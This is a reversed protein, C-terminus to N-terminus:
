RNLWPQNGRNKTKNPRSSVTRIVAKKTNKRQVVIKVPKDLEPEAQKAANQDSRNGKCGCDAQNADNAGATQPWGPYPPYAPYGYGYGYGGDHQAQAPMVMGHGGYGYGYDPQMNSPSIFGQNPHMAHPSVMGQNPHMALPSVMGQNPQMALPSVMGQNPQMALPSVMGQNPQMALPSVMGQNPQMALPSVMGQNPQMALPSVMGQNPMASAGAVMQSNESADQQLPNVGPYGYGWGPGAAMPMTSPSPYSGVFVTGPPCDFPVENSDGLPSVTSGFPVPQQWGGYGYGHGTQAPMAMSHGGYGYGGYAPQQQVPSVAEPAKPLDYLSLAETAPIGYQKFLDVNPKYESHIPQLKKEVPKQIPLAKKAPEVAAAKPAPLPAPKVPKVIPAVPKEQVPAVPSPAIPAVPVPAIPATPTKGAIPGTPIKGTIPATSLKGVWGQVNQMISTPHLSGAGGTGQGMGHGAGHGDTGGHGQDSVKPINVVEGTLLVNPNKLQPNAKIMDALPVGWAKSLKWLTDGQKVIHQHMIDMGGGSGGTHSSPIKLKMGVDIVDPNTIGPNLKLIEELSVNYKQGISYLSDGKKVIHIKM